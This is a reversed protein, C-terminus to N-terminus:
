AKFGWANFRFPANGYGDIAQDQVHVDVLGRARLADAFWARDYFRHELGAYRAAYAAAGGAVLERHAMAEKQTAIDPLDLVAVVRRAKRVMRDLVEDVYDLTDFYLFVGMSVVADAAGTPDLRSADGVTFDQGIGARRALGVLAPSHDVGSVVYGMEHLPRLFAAAGCGVEFVTEGPQLSLTLAVRGAFDRWAREEVRAFGSDLGDADMLQRLSPGDVGAEPLRRAAWIADWGSSM